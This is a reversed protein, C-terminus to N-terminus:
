SEVKVHEEINLHKKVARIADDNRPCKLLGQDEHFLCDIAFEKNNTIFFRSDPAIYDQDFTHHLVVFVASKDESHHFSHSLSPPSVSNVFKM